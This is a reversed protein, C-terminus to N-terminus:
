IRVLLDVLETRSKPLTTVYLSGIKWFSPYVLKNLSVKSEHGKGLKNYVYKREEYFIKQM